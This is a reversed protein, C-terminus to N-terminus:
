YKITFKCTPYGKLVSHELTVEVEKEFYDEMNEKLWGTSCNCQTSSEVLGTQHLPCFCKEYEVTLTNDDVKSWNVGKIASNLKELFDDLSETKSKLDQFMELAHARACFRGCHQMVKKRTDEDLYKEMSEMLTEIWEKLFGKSFKEWDTM